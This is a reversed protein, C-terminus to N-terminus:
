IPKKKCKNMIKDNIYPCVDISNLMFVTLLQTLMIDKTGKKGEYCIVTQWFFQVINNGELKDVCKLHTFKIKSVTKKELSYRKVQKIINITISNVYM